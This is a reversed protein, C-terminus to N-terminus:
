HLSEKDSEAEGIRFSENDPIGLIDGPFAEDIKSKKSTMFATPASGRFTKSTRTHIYTKNREFKGSVVKLFAIRNRHNPDINAHIKFVFGSFQNENPAVVREEAEKAQPEPAIEQFCDLLEQVGFNNLASGFFVPCQAGKLYAEHDFKPYVAELLELDNRLELAAEDGVSQELLSDNIDEISTGESIRQKNDSSYLHLNKEWMNYVGQFRQGMGVPWSLPCLTLGLKQEVEDILEFGDKGESDLKNSFVIIPTDRMRGVKVLKENKAEVGKAVEIVVM